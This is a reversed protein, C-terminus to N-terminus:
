DKKKRKGYGFIRLYIYAAFFTAVVLGFLTQM